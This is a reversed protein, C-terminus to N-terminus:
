SSYRMDSTENPAIRKKRICILSLQHKDEVTVKLPPIIQNGVTWYDGDWFRWYEQEIIEGNNKKLWCNLEKRSYSSCINLFIRDMPQVRCITFM